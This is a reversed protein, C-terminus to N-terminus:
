TRGRRRPFSTESFCNRCLLVRGVCFCLPRRFGRLLTKLRGRRM